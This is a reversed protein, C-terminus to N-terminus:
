SFMEVIIKPLYKFIFKDIFQLTEEDTRPINKLKYEKTRKDKTFVHIGRLGNYFPTVYMTNGEGNTVLLHKEGESDILETHYLGITTEVEDEDLIYKFFLENAMDVDGMEMVDGDDDNNQYPNPEQPVEVNGGKSMIELDEREKPTLSDIGDSTIKDLLSDMYKQDELLFIFQSETIVLKM